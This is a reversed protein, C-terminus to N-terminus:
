RSSGDWRAYWVGGHAGPSGVHGKGEAWAAHLAGRSDIGVGGYEGYVGDMGDRDPQTLRVDGSWTRGGDSSRKAWANLPGTRDDFWVVYVLGDGSAAIMPYFCAARDGSAPRPAASLVRPESWSVGDESSRFLLDSPDKGKGETYALYVRNRGDVAIGAYPVAVPCPSAHACWGQQMWVAADSFVHETWTAGRDASRIVRLAIRRESGGEDPPRGDMRPDTVYLVDDPARVIGTPWHMRAPTSDPTHRAFSEGGDASVLVGLGRGSDLALDIERGDPTVALEPKDSVGSAITAILKERFTRGRDRSVALVLGGSELDPKGSAPDWSFAIWSAFVNGNRDSKVRADGHADWKATPAVPPGFTRGADGSFWTVAQLSFPQKSTASPPGKRVAIVAVSDDGGVSLSPEWDDADGSLFQRTVPDRTAGLPASGSSSPTSVCGAGFFVTLGAVAAAIVPSRFPIV